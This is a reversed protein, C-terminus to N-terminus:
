GRKIKVRNNWRRRKEMRRAQKDRMGSRRRAGKGKRGGEGWREGGIIMSIADELRLVVLANGKQRLRNLRQGVLSRVCPAATEKILVIEGARCSREEM